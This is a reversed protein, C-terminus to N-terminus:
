WANMSLPPKVALVEVQLCCLPTFVGHEVECVREDYERKKAQEHHHFASHLSRSRTLSMSRFSDPRAIIYLCAACLSTWCVSCTLRPRPMSLHFFELWWRKCTSSTAEMASNHSFTPTCHSRCLCQSDPLLSFPMAVSQWATIDIARSVSYTIRHTTETRTTAM